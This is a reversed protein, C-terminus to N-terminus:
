SNNFIHANSALLLAKVSGFSGFLTLNKFFIYKSKLKRM